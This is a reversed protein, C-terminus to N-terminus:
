INLYINLNISISVYADFTFTVMMNQPRDNVYNAEHSLSEDQHSEV